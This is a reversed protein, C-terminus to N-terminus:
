APDRGPNYVPGGAALYDAFVSAAADRLVDRRVAIGRRVLADTWNRPKDGEDFGASEADEKRAGCVLARVGSWPVAGYCMACPECSTVLTLARGEALDWDGVCRQALSLAVMEAHALSLGSSTVLNVGASVVAAQAPDIVLAGFPGGNGHRVNARSLEIAAAMAAEESSGAEPHAALVEGVWGPLAITFRETM